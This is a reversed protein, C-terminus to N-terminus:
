ESGGYVRGDRHTLQKEIESLDDEDEGRIARARAIMAQMYDRNAARERAQRDRYIDIDMRITSPYPNPM